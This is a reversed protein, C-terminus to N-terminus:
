LNVNQYPPHQTKGKVLAQYEHDKEMSKKDLEEYNEEQKEEAGEEPLDYVGEDKNALGREIVSMAINPYDRQHQGIKVDTTHYNQHINIIENDVDEYYDSEARDQEAYDDDAKMDTTKPKHAQGPRDKQYRIHRSSMQIDKTKTDGPDTGSKKLRLVIHM